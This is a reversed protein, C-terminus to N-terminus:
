PKLPDCGDLTRESYKEEDLMEPTRSKAGTKASCRIGHTATMIYALIVALALRRGRWSNMTGTERMIDVPSNAVANRVVIASFPVSGLPALILYAHQPDAM